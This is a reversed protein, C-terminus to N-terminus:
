CKLCLTVRFMKQGLPVQRWVPVEKNKSAHYEQEFYQM